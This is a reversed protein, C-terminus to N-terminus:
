CQNEYRLEKVYDAFQFDAKEEFKLGLKSYLNKLIHQEIITAASLMLKKLSDSFIEPKDVADELKLQAQNELFDYIVKTGDEKFVQKLTDDVVNAFFINWNKQKKESDLGSIV